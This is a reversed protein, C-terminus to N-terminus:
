RTNVGFILNVGFYNSLLSIDLYELCILHLM